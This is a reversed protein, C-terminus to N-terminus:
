KHKQLYKRLGIQMKKNEIKLQYKSYDSLIKKLEEDGDKIM